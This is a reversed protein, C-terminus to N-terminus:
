KIIYKKADQMAELMSYDKYDLGCTIRYQTLLKNEREDVDKDIAAM